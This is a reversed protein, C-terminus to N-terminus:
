LNSIVVFLLTRKLMLRLPLVPEKAWYGEVLIFLGLFVASAVLPGIVLSNTWPLEWLSKFGLASLLSAICSVLAISGGWDIRALKERFTQAQDLKIPLKVDVKAIVLIM